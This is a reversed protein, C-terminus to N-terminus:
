LRREWCPGLGRPVVSPELLGPREWEHVRQCRARAGLVFTSPLCAAWPLRLLLAGSARLGRAPASLLESLREYHARARAVM